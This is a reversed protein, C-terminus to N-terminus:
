EATVPGVDRIETLRSWLRDADSGDDVVARDVEWLSVGNPVKVVLGNLEEAGNELIAIAAEADLVIGLLSVAVLDDDTFHNAAEPRDGRWL